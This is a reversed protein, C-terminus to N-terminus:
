SHNRQLLSVPAANIVICFWLLSTTCHIHFYPYTVMKRDLFATKTELLHRKCWLFGGLDEMRLLFAVKENEMTLSAHGKCDLDPWLFCPATNQGPLGRRSRSYHAVSLSAPKQQLFTNNQQQDSGPHWQMNRNTSKLPSFTFTSRQM